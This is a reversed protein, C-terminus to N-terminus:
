LYQSINYYFTIVIKKKFQCVEKIESQKVYTGYMPLIFFEKCSIDNCRAITILNVNDHTLEHRRICDKCM